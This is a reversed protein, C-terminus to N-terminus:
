LSDEIVDLLHVPSIGLANCKDCLEAVLSKDPSVDSCFVVEDGSANRGIIGFSRYRGLESSYLEEEFIDYRVCEYLVM